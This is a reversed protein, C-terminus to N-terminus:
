DRFISWRHTYVPQNFWVNKHRHAHHITVKGAGPDAQIWQLNGLYVIVHRGSETVALDGPLLGAHDMDKIKGHPELKYTFNRFGHGLAMASTDFWWQELCYFIASKNRQTLGYTILSNRLARRPLGSCDIGVSSEGGWVYPTKEFSQLQEIYLQHLKKSDIPKSPIISFVILLLALIAPVLRALKFKWLIRLIGTICAVLCIIFGLKTIGSHVPNNLLILLGIFAGLTIIYLLRCTM